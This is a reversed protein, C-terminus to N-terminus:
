RSALSKEFCRTRPEDKWYGFCPIPTYGATAYLSLAEPQALGTELRLRALGERAAVGEIRDLLLRSLGHGRAEPAVYMRKIEGVREAGPEVAVCGVARGDVRIIVYFAELTPRLGPDNSDYRVMVEAEQESMLQQVAPDVATTDEFVLHM